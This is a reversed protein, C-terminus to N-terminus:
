NRSYESIDPASMNAVKNSLRTMRREIITAFDNHVKYPKGNAPINITCGNISATFSPQWKRFMEPIVITKCNINHDMEYKIRAAYNQQKIQLEHVKENIRLSAENANIAKDSITQSVATAAAQSAIQAIQEPTLSQNEKESM